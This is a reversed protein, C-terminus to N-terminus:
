VCFGLAIYGGARYASLDNLKGGGNILCASYKNYASRLWWSSLSSTAVNYKKRNEDIDKYLPYYLSESGVVEENSPIWVDDDTSQTDEVGTTTYYSHSKTVTKVMSRVEAPIMLQITERIYTRLESKEWGGSTGTGEPNWRKATKLVEKSIFSVHAKGSGDALDDVDFGAIQMHIKGESGLDLPITDGISYVSAYDGQEIHYGLKMWGGWVEPYDEIARIQSAYTSWNSAAKYSDVLAAPVYIYGTGNDIGSNDFAATNWLNCVAAGRLIFTNLARASNFAAAKIMTVSTLDVSTLATCSHFASEGVITVAPLEVKALNACKYFAYDGVTTLTDDAYEGSISGDILGTYVYGTYKFQAYCSTDGTINKGTPSFGIFEYDAADGTGTYTPTEGTYTASGGYPVNSVTQLLTSGNYFYVTYTRVTAKFAAYLNRDATVNKLADADASGGPTRSWGEFAYTYQATSTKSPTSGGYVADAGDMVEATYLLTSGDDNYFYAYSAIHQYDITIYPYRRQMEALQAGTLSDIHLVGSVQAKDVNNGNEDLGRMQDLRDYLALVAEADDMTWNLGILRVRSNVPMAALIAATPVLTSSNEVRMTEIGAYASEPLTFDTFKNQNIVTLNKLTAPYHVVRMQGGNPLLLGTIATGDFYAEELNTCGSMDIPMALNPCNRVDVYKLLRNPGFTLSTLNGNSYSSASDGIKVRQLKVAKALNLQGVMFPSLDAIESILSAPYITTELDNAADVRCPLTYEVGRTARVEDVFSGMKSRLYTDAYAKLALEGEAYIRMLIFDSAVDGTDHKADFYRFRNYAWWDRQLEKLGQGMPFYMTEGLVEYPEVYKKFGDENAIAAPWHKQHEDFRAKVAAFNFADTLRLRKYEEAIKDAFAAKFNIWFVNGAANYVDAGSPLKDGSELSYGFALAGENNIGLATDADYLPWSWKGTAAFYTPFSNKTRSDVMLFVETFVFYFVCSDFDFHDTLEAKFKALRYAASDTTYTVGGYETSVIASNTAAAQNTSAIWQALAKLKTVNTNGDPYTAEFAEKWRSDFDEATQWMAYASVNNLTEWKEDGSTFGFIQPTGKDNNFNAKAYFKPGSGDDWFLVIPMGDITQRVRPDDEAPPPTYPSTDNFLQALVVNNAGESSAVDTKYTFVNVPISDDRMAYATMAVGNVTLGNKYKAKINKIYYYQSSTGQVDIEANEFTFSKEPRVPDVYYGDATVKDGKYQPWTACQFVLYPLDKPLKDLVVAGYADYVDNNLYRDVREVANATDAIWNDVIQYRTLDNDYVRINYLDITCDNSGISIGVPATQAFDDDAAYQVIGSMIGNLYILLLRNGSKKEVVFSLRIHEDEKYQTGITSQESYLDARQATVEIGRGGSMCSLIIADYNLVDRSAFELEVTKGTTRFDSGFINYPITLRADGTVRLVTNGDADRQWGDTVFNFGSFQAAISGSQWVGPNDENNSRGYSSLHLALNQTEAEIKVSSETVTLTFPKVTDGCRIELNLEGTDDPRYNWVQETRDVTGKSVETGNAWYTVAATLSAPDYVRHQIQLTAYQEAETQRFTSAIIPTTNGEVICILDYYLENSEVAEGEVEAEFWVRLSHSGHSQAPINYTQQRGSATVTQTGIETGDLIFHVTKEVAGTPTYIYQIEGSFVGSADFASTLTLAVANISFNINRANGYVDTITLKASNSGATLYDKLNVSIAGQKVNRTERIAGNVTVKLVGSGTEVGNEVSSWTATVVCDSGFSVTKALWGTTNTFTLTANNSSGGGSGGGGAVEFPGAVIEGGVTLCLRGDEDVHAGDIKSGLQTNINEITTDVDTELDEIVKNTDDIRKKEEEIRRRAVSDAIDYVTDSGPFKLTRMDPM